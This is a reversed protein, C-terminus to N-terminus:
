KRYIKREYCGMEKQYDRWCRKFVAICEECANKYKLYALIIEYDGYGPFDSERKMDNALDGRPTDKQLYKNLMWDYFTM